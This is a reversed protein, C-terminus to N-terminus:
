NAQSSRGKWKGSSRDLSQCLRCIFRRIVEAILYEPSPSVRNLPRSYRCAGTGVLPNATSQERILEYMWHVKAVALEYPKLEELKTNRDAIRKHHEALWTQHKANWAQFETNWKNYQTVWQHLDRTWESPADHEIASSVFSGAQIRLRRLYIVNVVPTLRPSPDHLEM